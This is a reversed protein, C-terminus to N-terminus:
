ILEEMEIKKYKIKNKEYGKVKITKEEDFDFEKIKKQIEKTEIYNRKCEDYYFPVLAFISNNDETLLERDLIDCMYKLTLLIGSIKYDYKELMNKLTAMELNWNITHKEYGRSIYYDQVWDTLERRENPSGNPKTKEPKYTKKNEQAKFHNEDCFYQCRKLGKVVYATEKEIEQKCFGCKVKM